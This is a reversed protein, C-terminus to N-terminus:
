KKGKPKAKPKAKAKKPEAPPTMAKTWKAIFAAASGVRPRDDILNGTEVADAIIGLCALAHGIHPLGSGAPEGKENLRMEGTVPDVGDLEEGDVWSLLHRVAAAVYVSASVQNGRWNYPGYKTAGNDMALSQYLISAPPVLFPNPKTMGFRTKPNNDLPKTM